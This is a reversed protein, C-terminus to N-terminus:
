YTEKIYGNNPRESTCINNGQTTKNGESKSKLKQSLQQTMKISTTSKINHIVDFSSKFVTHFPYNFIEYDFSSNHM